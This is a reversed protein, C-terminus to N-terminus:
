GVKTDAEMEKRILEAQREMATMAPVTPTAAPKGGHWTNFKSAFLEASLFRDETPNVTPDLYRAWATLVAEDGHAEVLGKMAKGVRGYLATGSGAGFRREWAEVGHQIWTLPTKKERKPKPEKFQVAGEEVIEILELELMKELNLRVHKGKLGASELIKKADWKLVNGSRKAAALLAIWGLKEAATWPAIKLDFFVDKDVQFWPGKKHLEYKDGNAVRFTRM